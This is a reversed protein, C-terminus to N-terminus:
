ICITRAAVIDILTLVAVTTASLRAGVAIAAKCTRTAVAIRQIVITHAAIVDVFTVNTVTPAIDVRGTRITCVGTIRRAASAVLPILAIARRTGANSWALDIVTPAIGISRTRYIWIVRIRDKTYTVM